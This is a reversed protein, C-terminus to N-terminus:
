KSFLFGFTTLYWPTNIKTLEGSATDVEAQVKAKVPIIGLFRYENQGQVSLSAGDESETIQADTVSNFLGNEIMNNIATSPLEKVKVEGKPTTVSITNNTQDVSIPFNTRVKHVEDEIELDEGVPKVKIIKENFSRGDADPSAEKIKLKLESDGFEFEREKEQIKLKVKGEENRIQVEKRKSEGVVSKELKSKVDRIKIEKIERRDSVLNESTEGLVKGNQSKIAVVLTLVFTAFLLIVTSSFRKLM